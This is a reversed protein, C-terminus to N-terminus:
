WYMHAVGFGARTKYFYCALNEAIAYIRRSKATIRIDVVINDELNWIVKVAPLSQPTDRSM